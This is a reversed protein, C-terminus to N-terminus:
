TQDQEFLNLYQSIVMQLSHNENIYNEIDRGMKKRLGKDAMLEKIDACMKRFSGSIRGLNYREIVGDPDIYLSVVPTRYQWSQLFTNPFGERVSTSVFLSSGKFYDAIHSFPVFGLYELNPISGLKDRVFSDNPNQSVLAMIMKFQYEPLCKALEIFKEPQKANHSNGVWLIYGKEKFNKCDPLTLANKIIQAKRGYSKLFGKRQKENQTVVYNVWLLGIRFFWYSFNNEAKKLSALDADWDTQSIFILKKKMFKCFLALPFLLHRPLKILHIDAGIEYLTKLLTIWCTLLYYNPGGRYKLAVKHATIDGIKERLPQGFDDVIYHVEYSQKALALGITKLQAEAGGASYFKENEKFLLYAAPSIICIKKM